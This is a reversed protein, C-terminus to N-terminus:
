TVTPTPMFNVGGKHAKGLKYVKVTCIRKVRQGGNSQGLTEKGNKCWTM